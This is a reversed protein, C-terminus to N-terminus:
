SSTVRNTVRTSGDGGSTFDGLVPQDTEECSSSSSIAARTRV